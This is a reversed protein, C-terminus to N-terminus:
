LDGRAKAIAENLASRIEPLANDRFCAKKYYEDWDDWGAGNQQIAVCWEAIHKIAVDRQAKLADVANIIEGRSTSEDLGLILLVSTALTLYKTRWNFRAITLHESKEQLRKNEAKLSDIEAMLKYEHAARQDCARNLRNIEAQADEFRVFEGDFNEEKWATAVIEYRKM